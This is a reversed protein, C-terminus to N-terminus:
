EHTMEKLLWARAFRWDREVTRASTEIGSAQMVKATEETDLGAFFKLEVVQAQRPYTKALISLAEDLAVLDVDNKSAIGIARSLPVRFGDVGGRKDARCKRAHDVLVHRMMTAATGVFHARNRWDIHDMDLIQLYVEHVLATAQLTHDPRENRLYHAALRRLEEYVFPTVQEMAASDGENWRALLETVNSPANM